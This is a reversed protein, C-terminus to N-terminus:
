GGRQSEAPGHSNDAALRLHGREPHEVTATNGNVMTEILRELIERQERTLRASSAPPEWRSVVPAGRGALQYVTTYDVSLADAIAQLVEETTEHGRSLVVRNVTTHGLNAAEALRRLSNFGKRDM